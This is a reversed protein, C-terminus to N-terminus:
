TVKNQRAHFAAHAKQSPFVLINDPDNNSKDDDIHHVVEGPKLLRGLNQEAVWRHKPVFGHKDARPHDPVHIKVYVSHYRRQKRGDESNPLTADSRQHSKRIAGPTRRQIGDERMRRHVWMVSRGLEAAMETITQQQVEYHEHFWAKGPSPLADSRKRGPTPTGPPRRDIGLAALAQQVAGRHCGLWDAIDQQTLGERVYRAELWERDGLEEYKRPAM